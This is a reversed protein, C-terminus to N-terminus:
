TANIRLSSPQTNNLSSFTASPPSTSSIFFNAYMYKKRRCAAHHSAASSTRYELIQAYGITHLHINIPMQTDHERSMTFTAGRLQRKALTEATVSRVSNGVDVKVMGRCGANFVASRLSLRMLQADLPRPAAPWCSREKWSDSVLISCSVFGTVIFRVIVMILYRWHKGETVYVTGLGAIVILHCWMIDQSSRSAIFISISSMRRETDEPGSRAGSVRSRCNNVRHQTASRDAGSTRGKGASSTSRVMPRIRFCTHLHTGNQAGKDRRPRCNGKYSVLLCSSLSSTSYM